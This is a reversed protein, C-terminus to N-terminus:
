CWETLIKNTRNYALFRSTLPSPFSSDRLRFSAAVKPDNPDDDMLTKDTENTPPSEDPAQVTKTSVDKEIDFGCEPCVQEGEPIPKNCSPCNKM